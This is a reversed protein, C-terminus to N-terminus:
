DEILWVLARVGVAIMLVFGLRICWKSLEWAIFDYPIM